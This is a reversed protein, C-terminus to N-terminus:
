PDVSQRPTPKRINVGCIFRDLPIEELLDSEGIVTKVGAWDFSILHSLMYCSLQVLGCVHPFVQPLKSVECGSM